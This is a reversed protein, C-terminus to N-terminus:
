FRKRFGGIEQSTMGHQKARKLVSGLTARNANGTKKNRKVMGAISGLQSKRIDWHPGEWGAVDIIQMALESGFHDVLGAVTSMAKKYTASKGPEGRQPIYQLAAIALNVEDCFVDHFGLIYSDDGGAIAASTSSVDALQDDGVEIEFRDLVEEVPLVAGDNRLLVDGDRHGYWIRNANSCAEDVGPWLLLMKALLSEADAVSMPEPLWWVLRYKDQPNLHNTSSTYGFAATSLIPDHLADEISTGEDPRDAFNDFDLGILHVDEVNERIVRQYGSNGWREEGLRCGNIAFGNEVLIKQLSEVKIERSEWGDGLYNPLRHHTPNIQKNLLYKSLSLWRRESCESM